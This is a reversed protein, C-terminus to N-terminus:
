ITEGFVFDMPLKILSTQNEQSLLLQVATRGLLEPQISLCCLKPSYETAQRTGYFGVVGVDEPVRIGMSKLGNVIGRATTDSTAFIAIRSGSFTNLAKKLLENQRSAVFNTFAPYIITKEQSSLEEFFLHQQAGEYHQLVHSECCIFADYGLRKLTQLTFKYGPYVDLVVSRIDPLSSQRGIVVIPLNTETRIEELIEDPIQYDAIFGINQRTLSLAEEVTQSFDTKHAYITQSASHSFYTGVAAIAAEHMIGAIIQNGYYEVNGTSIHRFLMTLFRFSNQSDDLKRSIYYNQGPKHLLFGRQALYNLAHVATVQSVNFNRCLERSSPVPMGPLLKGAKVEAFIKDAIIRYQFKAMVVEKGSSNVYQLSFKKCYSKQTHLSFLM